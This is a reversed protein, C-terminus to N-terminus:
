RTFRSAVWMADVGTLDEIAWNALGLADVGPNTVMVACAWMGAALASRLGAESDEFVLCHEPAVGLREAGLLFGDPAPKSAPYDEAGLVVRFSGMVGMRNLITHIDQRHSGSVLALPYAQALTSVARRAGPVEPLTAALIERYRRLVDVFVQPDGKIGPHRESLIEFAAEWKKGTVVKHDAPGLKLGRASLIEEVARAALGETDVLTGDMDFIVAEIKEPKRSTKKLIM